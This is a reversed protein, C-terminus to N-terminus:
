NVSSGLELKVITDGACDGSCYCQRHEITTTPEPMADLVNHRYVIVHEHCKKSQSTCYDCDHLTDIVVMDRFMEVYDGDYATIIDDVLSDLQDMVPKQHISISHCKFNLIVNVYYLYLQHVYDIKKLLLINDM